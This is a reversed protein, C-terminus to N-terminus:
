GVVDETDEEKEEDEFEDEQEDRGPRLMKRIIVLVVIIFDVHGEAMLDPERTTFVRLVSKLLVLRPCTNREITKSPEKLKIFREATKALFCAMGM